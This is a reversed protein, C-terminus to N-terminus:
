PKFERTSTAGAAGANLPVFLGTGEGYVTEISETVGLEAEALAVGILTDPVSVLWEPAGAVPRLTCICLVGFAKM